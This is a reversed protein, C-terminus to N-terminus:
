IIYHNYFAVIIKYFIVFFLSGIAAQAAIVLFPWAWVLGQRATAIAFAPSVSVSLWGFFIENEAQM